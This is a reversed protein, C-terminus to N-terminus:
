SNLHIQRLHTKDFKKFIDHIFSMIVAKNKNFYAIIKNPETILVGRKSAFCMTCIAKELTCDLCDDLKGIKPFLDCRGYRRMLRHTFLANEYDMPNSKKLKMTRSILRSESTGSPGWAQFYFEGEPVLYSGGGKEIAEFYMDYNDKGPYIEKYKQRVEQVTSDQLIEEVQCKGESPYFPMRTKFMGLFDKSQDHILKAALHHLQDNFIIDGDTPSDLEQNMKTRLDSIFCVHYNKGALASAIREALNVTLYDQIIYSRDTGSMLADITDDDFLDFSETHYIANFREGDTRFSNELSIASNPSATFRKLARPTQDINDRNFIVYKRLPDNKFAADEMQSFLTVFYPYNPDIFLFKANPFIDALVTFKISPAYGAYIVLIPTDPLPATFISLAQIETYLLKRQGYHQNHRGLLKSSFRCYKYTNKIDKISIVFKNNYYNRIFSQAEEKAEEPTKDCVIAQKAGGGTIYVNYFPQTLFSYLKAIGLILIILLIALLELM